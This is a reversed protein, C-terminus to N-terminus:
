QENARLTANLLNFFKVACIQFTVKLNASDCFVILWEWHGDFWVQLLMNTNEATIKFYRLHMKM